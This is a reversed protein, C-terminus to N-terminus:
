TRESPALKIINELKQISENLQDNVVIYQFNNRYALERKAGELRRRISEDSETGRRRLRRELEELNPPEIFITIAEPFERMVNMAGQVDVDLLLTKGDALCDDLQKRETGYLEGHVSAWEVFRGERAMREFTGRDVFFYDRGDTESERRRRTTYSVSFRLQPNRKLIERYITTKGSGSPASIVVIGKRSL